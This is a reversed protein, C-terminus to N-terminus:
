SCRSVNHIHDESFGAQMGKSKLYYAELSYALKELQNKCDVNNEMGHSYQIFHVIEHLLIAKGEETNMDISDLMYITKNRYNYLGYIQLKEPDVAKPLIKGFAVNVMEKGSVWKVDPLDSQQYEISTNENLWQLLEGVMDQAAHQHSGPEVTQSIAVPEDHAHHTGAMVSSTMLSAGLMMIPILNSLHDNGIAREGTRQDEKLELDNLHAYNKLYQFTSPDFQELGKEYVLYEKGDIVCPHVLARRKSFVKKLNPMHRQVFQDLRFTFLRECNKIDPKHEEEVPTSGAHTM